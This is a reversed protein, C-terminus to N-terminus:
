GGTGSGAGSAWRIAGSSRRMTADYGRPRAGHYGKDRYVIKGPKSLDARGHHVSASAVELGGVLGRSTDTEAHLKYGFVSERRRKAM